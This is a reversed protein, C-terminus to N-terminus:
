HKDFHLGIIFAISSSAVMTLDMKGDVVSIKTPLICEDNFHILFGGVQTEVWM